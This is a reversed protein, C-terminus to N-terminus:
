PRARQRRQMGFLVRPVVATIQVKYKGLNAEWFALVTEQEGCTCFECNAIKDNIKEGHLEVKQVHVYM